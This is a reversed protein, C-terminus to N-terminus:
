EGMTERQEIDIRLEHLDEDLADRVSVVGLPRDFEVVPLHRFGGDAMARLADIATREPAITKPERTMAASLTTRAPDRGEALTRVADRGTFIGVLRRGAVTVLVAGVRRQPREHRGDDFIAPMQERRVPRDVM